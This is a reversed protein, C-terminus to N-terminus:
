QVRLQFLQQRSRELEVDFTGANSATLQIRGPQGPQLDVMREYGHVHVQEAVDSTVEIVVTTGRRVDVPAPPPTVRGGAVTVRILQGNSTTTQTPTATVSTTTTTASTPATVAPETTETTTATSPRQNPSCGLTMAAM